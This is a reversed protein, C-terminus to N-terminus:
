LSSLYFLGNYLLLFNITDKRKAYGVNGMEPHPSYMLIHHGGYEAEAFATKQYLLEDFVEQTVPNYYGDTAEKALENDFMDWYPALEAGSAM